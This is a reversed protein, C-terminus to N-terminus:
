LHTRGSRRMSSSLRSYHFRELAKRSIKAIFNNRPFKAADDFRIIRHTNAKVFSLIEQFRREDIMDFHCCLTYIGIGFHRPHAFLQPVFVLGDEEYPWLAAGDTVFRFGTERLARVTTADFAHSPAMFIDSSVGEEALIKAGARLRGSQTELNHGAFESKRMLGLWDRSQCDYVHTYGHQAITWGSAKLKRIVDWFDDRPPSYALKPDRCDPVVGILCPAGIELLTNAFKNFRDWGMTPCIDDVRIIFKVM